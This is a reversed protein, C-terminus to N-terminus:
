RGPRHGLARELADTGGPHLPCRRHLRSPPHRHAMPGLASIRPRAPHRTTAPPSQPQGNHGLLWNCIRGDPRWSGLCHPQPNGLLFQITTFNYKSDPVSSIYPKVYEWPYLRFQRWHWDSTYRGTLAISAAAYRANENPLAQWHEAGKDVNSVDSITVPCQFILPPGGTLPGPSRWAYIFICRTGCYQLSADLPANTGNYIYTTADLAADRAPVFLTGNFTSNYFDWVWTDQLGDQSDIKRSRPRVDFQFCEGTFAKVVRHTFYPYARAIDNPNYQAYRFAFEQGNRHRFYDCNQSASYIESDETYPCHQQGQITEGYAHAVNQAVVHKTFPNPSVCTKNVYYCDLKPVNITGHRKIIGTSNTGSDMSYTLGIM